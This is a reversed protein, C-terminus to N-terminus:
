TGVLTDVRGSLQSVMEFKIFLEEEEGQKAICNKFNQQNEITAKRPKSKKVWLTNAHDM